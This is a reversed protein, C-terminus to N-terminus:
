LVNLQSTAPYEEARSIPAFINKAVGGMKAPRFRAVGILCSNFNGRSFYFPRSLKKKVTFFLTRYPARIAFSSEVDSTAPRRPTLAIVTRRQHRRLSKLFARSNGVGRPGTQTM